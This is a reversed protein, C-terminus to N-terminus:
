KWRNILYVILSIIVSLLISTVIPFYFRFNGKEVRIDGPLRGLFPIKDHFTVALGAAIFLIGIIILSRGM